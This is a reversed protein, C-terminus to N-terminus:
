FGAGSAIVTMHIVLTGHRLQTSHPVSESSMCGAAAHSPPMIIALLLILRILSTPHSQGDDYTLGVASWTAGHRMFEVDVEGSEENARRKYAGRVYTALSRSQDARGGEQAAANYSLWRQHVLVSAMADLLSSKGSGSPGTLLLGSSPVALDFYGNFTGWNVLQIRSLRHQVNM